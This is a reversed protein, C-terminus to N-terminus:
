LQHLPSEYKYNYQAKVGMICNTKPSLLVTFGTIQCDEEGIEDCIAKDSFQIGTSSYEGFVQFSEISAKKEEM